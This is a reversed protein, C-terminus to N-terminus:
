DFDTTPKDNKYPNFIFSQKRFSEQQRQIKATEPCNLITLFQM